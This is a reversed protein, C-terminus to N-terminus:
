TVGLGDPLMPLTDEGVEDGFGELVEFRFVDLDRRCLLVM